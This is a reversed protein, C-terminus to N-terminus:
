RRFTRSSKAHLKSLGGPLQATVTVTPTTFTGAIFDAKSRYRGALPNTGMVTWDVDDAVHTFFAASDGDERGKFIERRIEGQHTNQGHVPSKRSSDRQM